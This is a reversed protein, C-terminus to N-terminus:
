FLRGKRIIKSEEDDIYQKKLSDSKSNVPAVTKDTDDQLKKPSTSETDAKNNGELRRRLLPEVHTRPIITPKSDQPTQPAPVTLRSKCNSSQYIVPRSNDQIQECRLFISSTKISNSIKPQFPKDNSQNFRIPEKTASM